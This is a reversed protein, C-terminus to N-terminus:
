YKYSKTPYAGPTIVLQQNCEPEVGPDRKFRKAAPQLSPLPIPSAVLGGNKAPSSHNASVGEVAAATPSSSDIEHILKPRLKFIFSVPDFVYFKDKITYM